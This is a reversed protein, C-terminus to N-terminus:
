FNLKYRGLNDTRGLFPLAEKLKAPFKDGPNLYGQGSIREPSHIYADFTLGLNNKPDFTFKVLGKECQLQGSLTGLAVTEDLAKIGANDWLVTGRLQQCLPKGMVFTEIHVDIFKQASLPIPLTLQQAIDNAAVLVQGHSVEIDGFLHSLSAKGEPGNVLAGGFTADVSPNFMLLSLLNVEINVNHISYGDVIIRKISGQWISGKVGQLAVNKPLSIQNVVWQAPTQSVMFFLYVLVFVATGIFWKKM